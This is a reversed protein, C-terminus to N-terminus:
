EVKVPNITKSKKVLNKFVWVMRNPTILRANCYKLFLEEDYAVCEINAIAAVRWLNKQIVKVKDATERNIQESDQM